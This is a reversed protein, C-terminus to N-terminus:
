ELPPTEAFLDGRYKDNGKFDRAVLRGRVLPDWRGESKWNKDTDVWRVSVPKNGTVELCESTPRITWIRREDMFMLEEKRGEQVKAPNLSHGEHVDDWADLIVDEWEEGGIMQCEVEEVWKGVLCELRMIETQGLKRRKGGDGDGLNEWEATSDLEEGERAERGRKEGLEVGNGTGKGFDDARMQGEKDYLGDEGARPKQWEAQKPKSWGLRPGRKKRWGGRRRM